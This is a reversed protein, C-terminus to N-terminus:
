RVWLQRPQGFRLPLPSTGAKPTYELHSDAARVRIEGIPLMSNNDKKPHRDAKVTIKTAKPTLRCVELPIKSRVHIVGTAVVWVEGRVWLAVAVTVEEPGEGRGEGKGRRIDGMPKVIGRTGEGGYGGRGQADGGYGDRCGGGGYGSLGQADGGYGSRCDGGRARSRDGKQRRGILKMIGRSYVRFPEVRIGSYVRFTEAKVLFGFLKQLFGKAEAVEEVAETESPASESKTDPSSCLNLSTLYDCGVCQVASTETEPAPKKKEVTLVLSFAAVTATRQSGVSKGSTRPTYIKTGSSSNFASNLAPLAEVRQRPGGQNLGNSNGIIAYLIRTEDGNIPCYNKHTFAISTNSFHIVHCLHEIMNGKYILKRKQEEPTLGSTSAEKTCQHWHQQYLKKADSETYEHAYLRRRYALCGFSADTTRIEWGKGWGSGASRDYSPSSKCCRKEGM